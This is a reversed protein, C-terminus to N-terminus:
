WEIYTAQQARMEDLKEDGLSLDLSHLPFPWRDLIRECDLRDTATLVDAGAM